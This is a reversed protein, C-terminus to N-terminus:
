EDLEMIWTSVHLLVFTCISMPRRVALQVNGDDTFGGVEFGLERLVNAIRANQESKLCELKRKM